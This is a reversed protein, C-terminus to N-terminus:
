SISIALRLSPGLLSQPLFSSFDFPARLDAGIHKLRVFHHLVTREPIRSTWNPNGNQVSVKLGHQFGVQHMGSGSREALSTQRQVGRCSCLGHLGANFLICKSLHGNGSVLIPASLGLATSVVKGNAWGAAHGMSTTWANPWKFIAAAFAWSRGRPGTPAGLSIHNHADALFDNVALKIVTKWEHNPLRSRPVWDFM